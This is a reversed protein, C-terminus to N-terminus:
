STPNVSIRAQDEASIMSLNVGEVSMELWDLKFDETCREIRAASSECHCSLASVSSLMQGFFSGKIRTFHDDEYRSVRLAATSVAHTMAASIVYRDERQVALREEELVEVLREQRRQPEHM